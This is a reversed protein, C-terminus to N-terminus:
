LEAPEAAAPAIAGRRRADAGADASWRRLRGAAGESMGSATTQEARKRGGKGRARVEPTGAATELPPPTPKGSRVRSPRPKPIRDPDKPPPPM